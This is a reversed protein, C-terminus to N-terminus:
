PKHLDGPRVIEVESIVDPDFDRTNNTIFREAGSHVATALHISDIAKLGHSAGLAVALTSIDDDVAVLEIRDLMALLAIMEDHNRTQLPKILLEARLVFSGTGVATTDPADTGNEHFLHLVGAGRPDGTAAYILADSDFSDM